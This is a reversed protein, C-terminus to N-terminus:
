KKLELYKEWFEINQLKYFNQQYNRSIKKYEFFYKICAGMFKFILKFAEIKKVDTFYAKQSFKDYVMVRKAKYFDLPRGSFGNLAIGFDKYFVKPILLGNFTLLRFAKAIINKDQRKNSTMDYIDELKYEELLDWIYEMKPNYKMLERNLEEPNTNEFFEVGKSYDQLARIVLKASNYNLYMISRSFKALLNKFDMKFGTNMYLANVVLMNRLLYYNESIISYKKYFPEHWVNLGNLNIINSNNRITYEVDDGRFFCPFPYNNSGVMNIPFCSFWWGATGNAFKEEKENMLIDKEDFLNFNGKFPIFNRGRWSAYSEYQIEPYDLSCMSGAVFYNNYEEKKLELFSKLRELVRFDFLIDDDMLLIHSIKDNNKENYQQAEIIGRTFGGAGGYNKNKFFFVNKTNKYNLTKGNDVIFIKYSSDLNEKKLKNLIREIYMERKFTCVVLGLSIENEKEKSETAYYANYLVTNGENSAIEFYIMGEYNNINEIEFTFEKKSIKEINETKIVREVIDEGSLYRNKITLTFEGEIEIALFLSSLKTYKKWRDLSFSNFYTNFYIIMTEPIIIKENFYVVPMNNTTRFYLDRARNGFDENKFILSYLKKM